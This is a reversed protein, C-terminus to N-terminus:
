VMLRRTLPSFMADYQSCRSCSFLRWIVFKPKVTVRHICATLTRSTNKKKKLNIAIIKIFTGDLSVGVGFVHTHTPSKRGGVYPTMGTSVDGSM